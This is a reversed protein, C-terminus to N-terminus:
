KTVMVRKTVSNNNADYVKFFYVGTSYTSVDFTDVTKTEVLQGVTNYVEVKAFNAAKITIMGNAPNPFIAVTNSLENVATGECKGVADTGTSEGEECVAKVLWEYEVDAELEADIYETATVTALLEGDRYVNYETGAPMDVAATWTLTAVCEDDIVVALGTPPNCPPPPNDVCADKEFDVWEGDGGHSCIVAVSWKYAQEPDFTVDIFETETIPGAIIDGNRYVNYEIDGPEVGKKTGKLLFGMGSMGETENPAWNPYYPSTGYLNAPDWRCLMNGKLITGNAIHYQKNTNTAGDYAGYIAIWYKGAASIEVPTPLVITMDGNVIGGTPILTNNEYVITASPTIGSAVSEYITVGIHEPQPSGATGNPFGYFSVEQITWMEGAPIDFDDAQLLADGAMWRTGHFGSTGVGPTNDWLTEGRNKKGPADWTITAASCDADYKVNLNSVKDDCSQVTVPAAAVKVPICGDDYTAAVEFTYTGNAMDDSTWTTTGGPVSGVEAGQYIKYEVVDGSAATWSVTVKKGQAEATVNTVAPCPDDGGEGQEIAIDDIMLLWGDYSICVIAVYKTGAPLNYDYKTWTTPATVSAPSVLTFDGQATGTTSYCVKFKETYSEGAIILAKAWFSVSTPSTLLPSILWDNNTAYPVGWFGFYKVGGHAQGGVDSIPPTTASHNMVIYAMAGYKGPFDFSNAGYTELGDGDIFSWGNFTSNIAFNPHGEVDETFTGRVQQLPAAIPLAAAQLSVAAGKFEKHAPGTTRQVNQASLSGVCLAVICAMCVTKTIFRVM